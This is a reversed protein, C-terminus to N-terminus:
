NQHSTPAAVAVIAKSSIYPKGDRKFEVWRYTGDFVLRRAADLPIRERCSRCQKGALAANCKHVVILREIIQEATDNASSAGLIKEAHIVDALSAKPASLAVQAPRSDTLVPKAVGLRRRGIDVHPIKKPPAPRQFVSM